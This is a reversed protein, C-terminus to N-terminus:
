NKRKDNKKVASAKRRSLKTGIKRGGRAQESNREYVVTPINLDEEIRGNEIRAVVEGGNRKLAPFGAAGDIHVSLFTNKFPSEFRLSNENKLAKSDFTAASFTEDIIETKIRPNEINTHIDKMHHSPAIM